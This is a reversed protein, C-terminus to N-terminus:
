SSMTDINMPDWCVYCTSNCLLIKIMIPLECSRFMFCISSIVVM